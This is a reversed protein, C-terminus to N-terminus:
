NEAEVVQSVPRWAVEFSLRVNWGRVRIASAGSDFGEPGWFTNALALHAGLLWQGFHGWASGHIAASATGGEIATHARDSDARLWAVGVASQVGLAYGGRPRSHCYALGSRATLARARTRGDSIPLPRSFLSSGAGFRLCLRPRPQRVYAWEFDAGPASQAPWYVLGIRLASGQDVPPLRRRAAREAVRAANEVQSDASPAQELLELWSMEVLSAVLLALSRHSPMEGGDLELTKELAKETLTDFVRLRLRSEFCQIDVAVAPAAREGLELRIRAGLDEPNIGICARATVSQASSSSAAALVILTLAFRM